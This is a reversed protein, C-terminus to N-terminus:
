PKLNPAGKRAGGQRHIQGDVAAVTCGLGHAIQRKHLKLGRMWDLLARREPTWKMYRRRLAPRARCGHKDTM